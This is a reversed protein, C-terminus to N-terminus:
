VGLVAGIAQLLRRRFPETEIQPVQTLFVVIVDKEFDVLGFTGSAGTHRVAAGIGGPGRRVINFGLGYGEGPTFPQPRYLEELTERRVLRRGEVMGHNRHLLFFRTVDDLTSFLGGGPKDYTAKIDPFRAVDLPKFGADDRQYPPPVLRLLEPSPRFTATTAAIPALLRERLLADFQQGTVQEAIRGAVLYGISAYAYATGPQRSLGQRAAAEAATSLTGDRAQTYRGSRLEEDSPFGATHSVVQRLSPATRAPQGDVLPARLEPFWRGVPDDWSLKGSEVLLALLTTTHPKTISAIRCPTDVTFPRKTDLDAVGYAERLIVDGRHFILIAGGPVFKERIGAQFADRITEHQAATFGHAIWDGTALTGRSAQGAFGFAALLLAAVARISHKTM